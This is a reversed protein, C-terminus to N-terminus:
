SGLLERQSEGLGAMIDLVRMSRRLDEPKTSNLLEADKNAKCEKEKARRQADKMLRQIAKPVAKPDAKVKTPTSETTSGDESAPNAAVSTSSIDDFAGAETQGRMWQAMRYLETCHPSHRSNQFDAVTLTATDGRRLLAIRQAELWRAVFLGRGGGTEEHSCHVIKEADEVTECLLFRMVGPVYAKSWSHDSVDIARRLQFYGIDSFRRMVQGVVLLSTFASPHGSLLIPIGFNMVALFFLVFERQWACEDFNDQQGEDLVLMGVRHMSLIKMVFVVQADLNRLKRLNEGYSSGILADVGGIIRALLGGRSGNFPLDVHLYCIQTFRTWGGAQSPPHVVVQDPAFVELARRAITTKGEGTEAAVIGGSAPCALSQLMARDVDSGLLALQNIRRQEKARLPNRRLVSARLAEQVASAISVAEETPFFHSEQAALLTVRAEPPLQRWPVGKLPENLLKEPLSSLPVFPSYPELLPNPGLVEEPHKV